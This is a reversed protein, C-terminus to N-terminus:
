SLKFSIPLVFHCNVKLNDKIGPTWKPMKKVVRIAEEDLEKSVSKLVNIDTISGDKSVVFKLLVRGQIENKQAQEPYHINASLFKMMGPMGGPFEPLHDVNEYIENNDSEKPSTTQQITTTQNINQKTSGAESMKIISDSSERKDQKDTEIKKIPITKVVKTKNKSRTVVGQGYSVPAYSTVITLIIFIIKEMTM